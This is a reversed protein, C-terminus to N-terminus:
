RKRGSTRRMVWFKPTSFPPGVQAELKAVVKKAKTKREATSLHMRKITRDAEAIRPLQRAHALEHALVQTRSPLFIGVPKEPLGRQITIKKTNPEYSGFGEPVDAYVVKKVLGERRYNKLARRLGVYVRRLHRVPM